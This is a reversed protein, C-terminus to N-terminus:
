ITKFILVHARDGALCISVWKILFYFRKGKEYNKLACVFWAMDLLFPKIVDIILM